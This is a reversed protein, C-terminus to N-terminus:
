AFIFTTIALPSFRIYPNFILVGEEALIISSTSIPNFTNSNKYRVFPAEASPSASLFSCLCLTIPSPPLTLQPPARLLPLPRSHLSVLFINNYISRNFNHRFFFYIVSNKGSEYKKKIILFSANHPLLTFIYLAVLWDFRIICM